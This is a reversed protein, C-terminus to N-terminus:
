YVMFLFIVNSIRLVYLLFRVLHFVLLKRTKEKSNIKLKNIYCKKAM